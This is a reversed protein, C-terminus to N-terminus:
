ESCFDSNTPATRTYMMTTSGLIDDGFGCAKFFLRENVSCLASIDYIDRSTLMRIMRNVIMKGIGRRQLSPTVMVDYIAATLGLDSVARGFGVLQADAPSVLPLPMFTRLVDGLGMLPGDGERVEREKDNVVVDRLNCFVSVLISSHSLAVRLKKLDVAEVVKGNRDVAPFRHCSHNCRTYLEKLDDPNILSPNTSIFLPLRTSKLNSFVKIGRKRRNISRLKMKKIEYGGGYANLPTTTMAGVEM